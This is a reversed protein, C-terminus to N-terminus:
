VPLKETELVESSVAQRLKSKDMNSWPGGAYPLNPWGAPIVKVLLIPTVSPLLTHDKSTSM